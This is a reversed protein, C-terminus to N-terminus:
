NNLLCEKAKEVVEDLSTGYVVYFGVPTEPYFQLRYIQNEEIMRNELEKDIEDGWIKFEEIAQEPSEYVDKHKNIQLYIGCKCKEIIENM